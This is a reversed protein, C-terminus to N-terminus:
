KNLYKKGNKIVIGKYAANVKQGAVNYVNEQAADTSEVEVISTTGEIGIGISLRGKASAPAEVYVGGAALAPTYQYFGLGAKETYALVYKDTANGDSAKLLNDSWDDTSKESTPYLTLKYDTADTKLVVPTGKPIVNGEVETLTVFSKETATAKYITTNEDVQYTKEADYFTKYGELNSSSTLLKKPETYLLLATFCGKEWNPTNKICHLHAFGRDETMKKLDITVITGDESKSQYRDTGWAQNPIDIMPTDDPNGSDQGGDVLRNFCFRPTGHTTVVYLKDYDSLNAYNLWDVNGAGYPLDSETKLEYACGTSNAPEVAEHNDWHMFMDTTLKTYGDLLVLANQAEMLAEKAATVSEVTADSAAKAAKAEGIAKQLAAFSEATYGLSPELEASTISEGLASKLAEVPNASKVLYFDKIVASGSSGLGALMINTSQNRYDEPIDAITFEKPGQGTLYAVEATTGGEAWYFLVRLGEGEQLDYDIVLKEYVNIDGTPFGLNEMSNSWSGHWAFVQTEKNYESNGACIPNSFDAHWEDDSAANLSVGGVFLLMAMLLLKEKM